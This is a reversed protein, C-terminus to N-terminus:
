IEQNTVVCNRGRNKAEYLALDAKHILNDINKTNQNYTTIGISITISIKAEEFKFINDEINKRLREGVPKAKDLSSKPLIIGFEEGGLRGVTDVNRVSEKLISALSKLVEDGILHGYTDNVNKFHDIDIMMLSLQENYRKAREIEKKGAQMFYRRNYLDTLSDHYNLYIIEEEKEKRKRINYYWTKVSKYWVYILILFLIFLILFTLLIINKRFTINDQVHEDVLNTLEETAKILEQHNKIYNWSKLLNVAEKKRGQSILQYTNNEIEIIRNKSQRINEVDNLGERLNVLNSINELMNNAKEKHEIYRNEWTLDGTHAAILTTLKLNQVHSLLRGSIRQLTLEKSEFNNIAYYSYFLNGILLLIVLFTVVVSIKFWPNSSDPLEDKNKNMEEDDFVM